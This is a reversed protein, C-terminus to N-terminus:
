VQLFDQQEGQVVLATLCGGYVAGTDICIRNRRQVPGAGPTHGHVVLKGFDDDSGLFPERIWLLDNPDQQELPVGPRVGAHVFLFDGLEHSRQLGEFFARHTAPLLAAFRESLWTLSDASAPLEELPDVGYSRLTADGGNHLWTAGVAPEELFRLLFQEHNGMLHTVEFGPLPQELLTEVVERSEPGRDVYDGLYVLQRRESEHEAADAGIKEHLAELLDLRGHIDGIAYIRLGPPACHLSVAGGEKRGLAARLRDVLVVKYAGASQRTSTM